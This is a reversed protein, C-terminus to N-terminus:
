NKSMYDLYKEQIAKRRMVITKYTVHMERAIESFNSSNNYCLDLTERLVPTLDLQNIINEIRDYEAEYDITTENFPDYTKEITEIDVKDKYDRHRELIM